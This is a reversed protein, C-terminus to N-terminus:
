SHHNTAQILTTIRKLVVAFIWFIMVNDSCPSQPCVFVIFGATEKCHVTGIALNREFYTVKKGLMVAREAAM